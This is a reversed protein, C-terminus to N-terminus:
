LLGLAALDRCLAEGSTFRLGVLGVDRAADVNEAKDDIFLCAGAALDYRDLLVQYIRPDPKVVEEQGSV